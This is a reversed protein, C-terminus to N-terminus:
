LNARGLYHRLVDEATIIGVDRGNADQVIGMPTRAVLLRTLVQPLETTEPIHPAPREGAGTQFLLDYTNRVGSWKEIRSAHAVPLRAFGTARSVELCDSPSAGELIAQVEARPKMANLALAGRTDLIRAVLNQQEGTLLVGREDSGAMVKLEERTIHEHTPSARGGQARVLVRTLLDAIRVLPWLLLTLAFLFPAFRIALRNPFREFVAKPVLEGYLWLAFAILLVSALAALPGGIYFFHRAVLVVVTGNALTNGAVVLSALRNPHAIFRILLAAGASGRERLHRIRGWNLNALAAEMGSFFFSLLLCWAVLLATM